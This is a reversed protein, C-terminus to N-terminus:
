FNKNNFQDNFIKQEVCLDYFNLVCSLVNSFYQEFVRNGQTIILFDADLKDLRICLLLVGLKIKGLLINELAIQCQSSILRLIHKDLVGNLM